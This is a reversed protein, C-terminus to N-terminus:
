FWDGVSTSRVARRGSERLLYSASVRGGILREAQPQGAATFMEIFWAAIEEFTQTFMRAAQRSDQRVEELCRTLM